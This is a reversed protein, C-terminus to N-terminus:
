NVKIKDTGRDAWNQKPLHFNPLFPMSFPCVPPGRSSFDVFDLTLGGTVRYDIQVYMALTVQRFSCLREVGSLSVFGWLGEDNGSPCHSLQLVEFRRLLSQEGGYLHHLFMVVDLPPQACPQAILALLLLLVNKQGHLCTTVNRGESSPTIGVFKVIANRLTNNKNNKTKQAHRAAPDAFKHFTKREPGFTLCIVAHSCPVNTSTNWRSM